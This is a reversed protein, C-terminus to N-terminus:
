VKTSDKWSLALDRIATYEPLAKPIWIGGWLWTGIWGYKSIRLSPALLVNGDSETVTKVENKRVSRQYRYRVTTICDDSVFVKYDFKRMDFVMSLVAVIIADIFFGLPPGSFLFPWLFHGIVEIAGFLGGSLLGRLLRRKASFGALESTVQYVKVAKKYWSQPMEVLRDPWTRHLRRMTLQFKRSEWM